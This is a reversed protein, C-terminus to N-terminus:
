RKRSGVIATTIAAPVDPNFNPRPAGYVVGVGIHRRSPTLLNARHEDSRMWADVMARPTANGGKQWGIVEGAKWACACGPYGADTVREGFPDEGPCQHSICNTRDEVRSHRKAAKTLARNKRLARLGLSTRERNILCRVAKAQAGNSVTGAVAEANACEAAPAPAAALLVFSGTAAAALLPVIVRAPRPFCRM